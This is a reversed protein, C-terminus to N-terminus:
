GLGLEDASLSNMMYEAYPAYETQADAPFTLGAHYLADEGELYFETVYLGEASVYHTRVCGTMENMNTELAPIEKKKEEVLESLAYTKEERRAFFSMGREPLEGAIGREDEIISEEPFLAPYQVSFGYGANYYEITQATLYAQAAEEMLLEQGLAFRHLKWGLPAGESRHLQALVRADMLEMQQGLGIRYLQGIVMAARGDEDMDVSMVQLGGMMLPEDAPVAEGAKVPVALFDALYRAQDEGTLAGIGMLTLFRRVFGEPVAEGEGFGEISGEPSMASVAALDLLVYAGADLEQALAPMGALFLAAAAMFAIIKSRM